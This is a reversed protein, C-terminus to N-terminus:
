GAMYPIVFISVVFIDILHNECDKFSPFIMDDIVYKTQRKFKIGM